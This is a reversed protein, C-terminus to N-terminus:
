NKTEIKEIEGSENSATTVTRYKGSNHDYLDSQTFYTNKSIMEIARPNAVFTNVLNFIDLKSKEEAKLKYELESVKLNIEKDRLTEEKAKLQLSLGAVKDENSRLVSLEKEFTKNSDLVQSLTVKIKKLEEKEKEAQEIFKAMEGAAMAPLNQEILKKLEEKM